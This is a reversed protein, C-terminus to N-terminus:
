KRKKNINMRSRRFSERLRENDEYVYRLANRILEQITVVKGTNISELAAIDHLKEYMSVEIRTSVVTNEELCQPRGIRAM